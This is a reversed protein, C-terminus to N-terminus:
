QGPKAPAAPAPTAAPAAPAPASPATVPSAPVAFAAVIQASLADFTADQQVKDNVVFTPTSNVGLAAGMGQVDFIRQHMKPDDMCSHVQEASLKFKGGLSELAPIVAGAIAAKEIDDRRAFAEDIVGFFGNDKDTGACRAIAFIAADVPPNHSPFERFVFKIKNTDIYTSKMKAWFQDHWAKCAPCTPAGYEYVTVTSNPNGLFSDGQVPALSTRAPSGCAALALAALIAGAIRFSM